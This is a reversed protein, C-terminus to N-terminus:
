ERGYIIHSVDGNMRDEESNGRKGDGNVSGNHSVSGRRGRMEYDMEDGESRVKAAALALEALHEHSQPLNTKEHSYYGGNRSGEPPSYNSMASTPTPLGSRLAAWESGARSSSSATHVMGSPRHPIPSTSPRATTNPVTLVTRENPNTASVVTITRNTPTVM